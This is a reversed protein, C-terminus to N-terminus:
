GANQFSLHHRKCASAYAAHADSASSFYGLFMRKNDIRIRACWKNKDKSFHVGKFGSTNSSKKNQNRMNQQRTATRLNFIRNDKKNCNIHDIDGEPWKEYVYFWALRHALYMDGDIRIRLYGNKMVSGAVSGSTARGRKALWRFIGTNSDYDLLEKLRENSLM